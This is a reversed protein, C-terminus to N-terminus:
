HRASPRRVGITRSCPGCGPSISCCASRPASLCRCGRCGCRGARPRAGCARLPSGPRWCGTSWYRTTARCSHRVAQDHQSARARARDEADGVVRCLEKCTPGAPGYRVFVRSLPYNLHATSVGPHARLAELVARGLEEGHEERLGRVEIWARDPRQCCRRVPPGGVNDLATRVVSEVAGPVDLAERLPATVLGIGGSMLGMGALAADVGTSAAKGAAGTAIDVSLGAVAAATKVGFAATRM